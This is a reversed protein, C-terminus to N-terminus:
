LPKKLQATPRPYQAPTPQRKEILLICLDRDVVNKDVDTVALVQGGFAALAKEASPMEVKIQERSKQAFLFGGRRVLPLALEAVLALSGVARATAFDFHERMSRDHAIEEARANIVSVRETLQLEEIAMELFRTKKGISDICTVHLAPMIMALILAPFGAGSGIDVLSPSQRKEMGILTMKADLLPVLTLADLVHDRIVVDPAAKAVLNTHQNYAQLIRLYRRILAIAGDSIELGLYKAAAVLRDFGDVADDDAQNNKSTQKNM